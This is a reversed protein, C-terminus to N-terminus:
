AAGRVRQRRDGRLWARVAEIDYLRLNGRRIVPLGLTEWRQITRESPPEQGEVTLERRLQPRSLLGKLLEAPSSNTAADM